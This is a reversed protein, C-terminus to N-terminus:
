HDSLREFENSITQTVSAIGGASNLKCRLNVPGDLLYFLCSSVARLAGLLGQLNLTMFSIITSSIGQIRLIATQIHLLMKKKM